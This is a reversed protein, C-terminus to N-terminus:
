RNFTVILAPLNNAASALTVGAPHGTRNTELEAQVDRIRFSSATAGRRLDRKIWATVDISHNRTRGASDLTVTLEGANEVETTGLAAADLTGLPREFHEIQLVRDTLPGSVSSVAFALEVTQVADAVELLPQVDFRVIVRDNRTLTNAHGAFLGINPIGGESYVSRSASGAGYDKTELPVILSSAAAAPRPGVPPNQLALVGFDKPSYFLGDLLPAWSSHELQGGARRSRYFNARLKRGAQAGTIGLDSWPIAIQAVWRSAEKRVIVGANGNWATNEAKGLGQMKSDYLAGNANLIYHNGLEPQAADPMIFVEVVDDDWVAPQNSDRGTALAKLKEMEPEYCRMDVYLHRSDWSVQMNTSPTAINYNRDLLQVLPSDNGAKGLGGSNPQVGAVNMEPKALQGLRQASQAAPAFERFILEVRQRYLSGAPAKEKAQKLCDMLENITQTDYVQSPNSQWSKKLWNREVTEWFDRMPAQAPGYFLRYYEGLMANVDLDPNWLLRATLYLLPHQLGPYNIKIKEPSSVYQDPAWSESELYEGQVKGKLWQLDEQVLKSFFMPYGRWNPNLVINCYYEWTYLNDAKTRWAEIMEQTLKESNGEPYTARFKCIVVAVNPSLREINSPPLSYGQYAIGLIRKDPHKKAVGRAVKDIFGWIYNSFEGDPGRTKDIQAQSEPDDSIRRLGDNPILPYMLQQPHRDFYAIADDIARQLLGSDSLNLNGPGIITSLNTFDRQGDILAFYEPNTDKYKLFEGFTHYAPAPAPTGFGARRYWVADEDSRTMFGYYAHRHSFAPALRLDIPPVNIKTARPIVTGLPGPMYWRVGCYKELFHYVGFLTGADGFASIDLKDNYSEHVRYPVNAGIQVPGAYDKGVVVMWDKHSLIRFGDPPLMEPKIGQARAFATDGLYIVYGSLKAADTTVPLEAGSVLKLHDQLELAARKVASPAGADMYITAGAQGNEVITTQGVAQRAGTSILALGVVGCAVLTKYLPMINAIKFRSVM